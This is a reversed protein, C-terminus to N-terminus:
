LGEKIEEWLLKGLWFALVGILITVLFMFICFLVQFYVEIFCEM